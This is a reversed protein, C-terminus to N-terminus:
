LKCCIQSILIRELPWVSELWNEIAWRFVLYMMHQAEINLISWKCYIHLILAEAIGEEYFPSSSGEKIISSSTLLLGLELSISVVWYRDENLESWSLVSGAVMRQDNFSTNVRKKSSIPRWAPSGLCRLVLLCHTTLSHTEGGRTKTLLGM